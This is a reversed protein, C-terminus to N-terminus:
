IELLSDEEQRVYKYAGEGTLAEIRRIGSAIGGEHIIKFLGIDGTAKTHTGGCLEMSYDGMKVVSVEEGYKEGFLATAGKKVADDLGMVSTEVAYNERIKRNVIEEVRHIEKLTPTSFHTYDFRLRDPAVLSGAQKVHDGLVDRLATHLLHTASHNLAAAKRKDIDVSAKVIDNVRVSGKKITCNHVILNPLPKKTELVDMSINDNEIRGKDGVQGGSEGYFPTKNLVIEVGEGESASEKLDNNKVIAIVVGDSYTDEYGTFQVAPSFGQGVMKQAVERYIAKIGEEGSGKWSARAKEKQGEMARTYGQTDVTFGSDRAIDETLDLPFGYTDYLKFVEEGPITREKGQYLREPVPKAKLNGIIDNLMRMGIDLTSGFREEETSIVRSIYESRDAIEPYTDKMLNVVVESTKFLFPENKGLMKGHRSARRIIRRLVYGRGENSPMVGDGILFTISRSHDAIVRFSM